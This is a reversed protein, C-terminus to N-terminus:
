KSSIRACQVRPIGGIRAMAIRGDQCAEGINPGVYPVLSTAELEKVDGIPEEPFTIKARLIAVCSSTSVCFVLTMVLSLLVKM